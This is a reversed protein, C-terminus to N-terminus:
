LQRYKGRKKALTPLNQWNQQDNLSILEKRISKGTM